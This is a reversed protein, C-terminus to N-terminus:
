LSDAMYQKPTLVMFAAFSLPTSRIGDPGRNTQKIAMTIHDKMM